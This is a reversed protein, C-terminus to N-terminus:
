QLIEKQNIKAYEAYVAIRRLAERAIEALYYDEAALNAQLVGTASEDGIAGLAFAAERRVDPFERENQLTEILIPVALRFAPFIEILKPYNPKEIPKFRDPLFNEPTIVETEGTQVIQAIQGISRAAARRQFEESSRPRRQLIKALEPVAAADGVGGLAVIAANRVESTKDKQFVAILSNVTQAQRVAGLAYAAERRVLPKKDKLLPLLNQAAEDPPLFVVAFAATARVIESRDKLAPLALRSAEASQRRKIELLADRRQEDSGRVITEGIITLDIQPFVDTTFIVFCLCLFVAPSFRTELKQRGVKKMRKKDERRM